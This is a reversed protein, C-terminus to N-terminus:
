YDYDDEDEEGEDSLSRITVIGHVDDYDYYYGEPPDPVKYGPEEIEYITEPYRQNYAFFYQLRTRIQNETLHFGKRRGGANVEGECGPLILVATSSLLLLVNLSRKM